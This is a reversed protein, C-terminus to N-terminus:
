LGRYTWLRNIGFNWFLVVGVAILKSLNYDLPHTFGLVPMLRHLALAFILQNIGLGITNVLAFQPLQTRKKRARSEPFTWLRNWTFNSLVAALFSFPNAQLPGLGGFLVLLNLVTFDVVMGITGVIAFKIFREVEKRNDVALTLVKAPFEPAKM